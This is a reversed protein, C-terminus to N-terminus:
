FFLERVQQTLQTGDPDAQTKLHCFANAWDSSRVRLPPNTSSIVDMICDAVEDSSQYVANGENDIARGRASELYKTLIPAYEDNSVSHRAIINNSFESRIGGPEILSFKINFSPQIYTAMSETYGELAFKSACYIENFPQGVLGGVSSINIIHGNRAERMFPLVAKVCRVVGMFNTDLIHQIEEESAQETTKIFGMGANNILCDIRGEQTLVTKICENVSATDQVDLQMVQVHVGHEEAAKLVNNRKDLHRMTAYVKHGNQALKISLSLGLGTSAGTVLVVKSM